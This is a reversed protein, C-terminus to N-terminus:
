FSGPQEYKKCVDQSLNSLSFNFFGKGAMAKSKFADRNQQYHEPTPPHIPSM